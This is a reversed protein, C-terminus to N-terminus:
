PAAWVEGSCFLLAPLIFLEAEVLGLDLAKLQGVGVDLGEISSCMFPDTRSIWLKLIEM